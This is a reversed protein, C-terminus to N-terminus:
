TFNVLKLNSTKVRSNHSKSWTYGGKRLVMMKRLMKHMERFTKVIMILSKKDM